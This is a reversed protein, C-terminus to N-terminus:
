KKSHKKGENAKAFTPDFLTPNQLLAEAVLRHGEENWHADNEWYYKKRVEVPNGATAFLPFLSIFNANHKKAWEGWVVEARSKHTLQPLQQPWPYVVITLPISRKALIEAIEDVNKQASNLGKEIFTSYPGQYDPWNWAWKPIQDYDSIGIKKERGRWVLRLNRSIAGIIVFNNEIEGELWSNMEEIQAIEKAKDEFPAYPIEVAKGDVEKYQLENLVDSIDSFMIVQDVELGIQELLYKLRIKELLPCYSVVAGNLVEIGEKELANSIIGVFTQDWGISIGETFSDGMFLIRPNKKKISVERNERDKMGLSNSFFQCSYPGIIDINSAMPRIGHHYLDSKERHPASVVRPKIFFFKYAQRVAFDSGILGAFM